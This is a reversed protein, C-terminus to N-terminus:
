EEEKIYIRGTGIQVVITRKNGQRNEFVFHGGLNVTGTPHFNLNKRFYTNSTILISDKFEIKEAQASAEAIYVYIKDEYISVRRARGDMIADNRANLLVQCVERCQTKLNQNDIFNQLGKSNLSVMSLIIGLIGVTVIMEVLTFASEDKLVFM